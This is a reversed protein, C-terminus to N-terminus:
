ISVHWNRGLRFYCTLVLHATFLLLLLKQCNSARIHNSIIVMWPWPILVISNPRYFCFLPCFFYTSWFKIFFVLFVYLIFLKRLFSFLFFPFFINLELCPKFFNQDGVNSVSSDYNDAPPLIYHSAVPGPFLLLLYCASSHLFIRFIRNM